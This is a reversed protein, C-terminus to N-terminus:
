PLWKKILSVNDFYANRHFCLYYLKRFYNLGIEKQEYNGFLRRYINKFFGRKLQSKIHNAYFSRSIKNKNSLVDRYAIIVFNSHSMAKRLRSLYKLNLRGDTMFHKFNLRDDYWMDYGLLQLAYCYETDGGSSLADGKRCSLIHEFGLDTLEQWHAKRIVMGAGYLYEAENTVNGSIKAQPGVAYYHAYKDFWDPKEKEFVAESCGGLAGINQHEEMIDFATQIYTDCLWNDDDCILMYSYKAKSYGLAQAYSKGPTKETYSTYTILSNVGHLQWWNDAFTKTHDTSANDVLIIECPVTHKQAVLHELTSVLRQKGNYTCIIVSIGTLIHNPKSSM